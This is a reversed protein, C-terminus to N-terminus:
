HLVRLLEPPQVEVVVHRVIVPSGGNGLYARLCMGKMDRLWSTEGLARSSGSNLCAPHSPVGTRDCLQMHRCRDTATLMDQRLPM